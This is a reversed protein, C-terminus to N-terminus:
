KLKLEAAMNDMYVQMREIETRADEFFKEPKTKASSFEVFNASYVSTDASRLSYDFESMNETYEVIDSAEEQLEKM